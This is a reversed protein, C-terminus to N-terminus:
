FVPLTLDGLQGGAVSGMLKMLGTQFSFVAVQLRETEREEWEIICTRTVDTM